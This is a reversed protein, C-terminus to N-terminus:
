IFPFVAIISLIILYIHCLIDGIFTNKNFKIM